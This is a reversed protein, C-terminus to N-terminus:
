NFYKAKLNGTKVTIDLALEEKNLDPHIKADDDIDSQM